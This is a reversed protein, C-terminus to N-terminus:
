SPDERRLTRHLLESVALSWCGVLPCEVRSPVLSSDNYTSVRTSDACIAESRSQSVERVQYSTCGATTMLCIGIITLTQLIRLGLSLPVTMNSICVGYCCSVSSLVSLRIDNPLFLRLIHVVSSDLISSQPLCPIDYVSM